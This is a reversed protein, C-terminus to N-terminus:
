GSENEVRSRRLRKQTLVVGCLVKAVILVGDTNDTLIAMTGGRHPIGSSAGPAVVSPGPSM